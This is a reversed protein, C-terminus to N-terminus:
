LICRVRNTEDMALSLNFVHLGKDEFVIAIRDKFLNWITRTIEQMQM